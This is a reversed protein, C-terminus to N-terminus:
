RVDIGNESLALRLENILHSDSIWKVLGDIHMFEISRGRDKQERFWGDMGPEVYPNAHGNTVLIGETRSPNVPLHLSAIPVLFLEELEDKSERWKRKDLEGCKAQYMRLVVENGEEVLAVLDQGYEVPGHRIQAYLPLGAQLLRLLVKRFVAEDTIGELTRHMWSRIPGFAAHLAVEGLAPRAARTLETGVLPVRSLADLASAMRNGTIEGVPNLAFGELAKTLENIFVLAHRDEEQEGFVRVESLYSERAQTLNLTLQDSLAAIISKILFGFRSVEKSHWGSDPLYEIARALLLKTAEPKQIAEVVCARARYYPAWLGQNISSWSRGSRLMEDASPASDEAFQKGAEEFHRVADNPEVNALVVARWGESLPGIGSM